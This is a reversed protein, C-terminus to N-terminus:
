VPIMAQRRNSEPMDRGFRKRWRERMWALHSEDVQLERGFVEAVADRTLDDSTPGLGGTTVVAGTRDLAESVAAVIAQMTDGVATRRVIAIGQEALKQAIFAGNTDITFGLLLEDGITILEVNGTTMRCLYRGSSTPVVRAFRWCPAATVGMDAVPACRHTSHREGVQSVGDPTQATGRGHGDTGHQAECKPDARGRRQGARDTARQE